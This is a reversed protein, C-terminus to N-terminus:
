KRKIGKFYRTGLSMYESFGKLRLAKYFNNRTLSQRDSKYCYTDYATYLSSREERGEQVRECEDKLFAEVTDSDCRLREVAEVSSEPETITGVQYLRELAKVSAWIFFDIEGTLKSFFDPDKRKPLKNMPLILLRRYFGNTREAKVIPLENTSFILKAYSRFSIADKGKAEARLSDEGLVKKLTSTDELADIELDACSNLLKGLLGFASFRQTLESLSINSVNETGIVEEILRIVTSKGTGGEGNLILFKQQRTDRTMCLGSFGLLMEIEETDFMDMFWSMINEGTPQVTPDFKHPIQNVARYKPDHRIMRKAVPDYFANKFNIWEIPYNNLDEDTVQLESASIFLDYVRKITNSKVFEPYILKRIMTKLEAGNLDPRYVGDRYIYPVGGLVFLDHNKKIHEFIAFDFVGTIRGKDNILHFQDLNIEEKLLKEFDEVTHDVFFDSIDGKEIEPTPVVVRVSKAVKALDSQVRRSLERGPEDNDSLIIVTAGSFLTTCGSVWDDASGCTVGVFGKQYLTKVDKEGEVYFITEGDRIAEQLRGFNVTYVAPIDKRKKGKLGFDFRDGSLIGYRFDKPRLRIRTFAYQGSLDLYQYIDEIKAGTSKEVYRRWRDKVEPLRDDYFLDTEKLGVAGLIDSVRCGAHCHILTGKDGRSVTLSAKNDNHAPCTCQYSSESRKHKITFQSLVDEFTM